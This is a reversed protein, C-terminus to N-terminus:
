PTVGFANQIAALLLTDATSGFLVRVAVIAVLARGAVSETLAGVVRAGLATWAEDAAVHREMVRVMERIEGHMTDLRALIANTVDDTM